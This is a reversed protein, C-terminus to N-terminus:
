RVPPMVHSSLLPTMKVPFHLTPLLSHALSASRCAWQGGRSTEHEECARRLHSRVIRGLSSSKANWEESCSALRRKEEVSTEVAGTTPKDELMFSLLGVLVTSVSWGPCWSEPHFDSMSLCLRKNEEFRGNPTLMLISPPKFPYDVPFRLKGIYLRPMTPVLTYYTKDLPM